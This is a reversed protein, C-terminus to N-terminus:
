QEDSINGFVFNKIFNYANKIFNYSVFEVYLFLLLSVSVLEQRFM